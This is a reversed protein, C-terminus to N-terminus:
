MVVESSRAACPSNEDQCNTRYEGHVFRLEKNTDCSQRTHQPTCKTKSGAEEREEQSGRRLPTPHCHCVTLPSPGSGSPSWGSLPQCFKCEVSRSRLCVILVLSCLVAWHLFRGDILCVHATTVLVSQYLPGLHVTIEYFIIMEFTYMEWCVFNFGFEFSHRKSMSFCKKLKHFAESYQATCVLCM